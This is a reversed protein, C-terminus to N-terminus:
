WPNSRLATMACRNYRFYVLTGYWALHLVFVKTDLFLHTCSTTGRTVAFYIAVVVTYNRINILYLSFGHFCIQNSLLWLQCRVRM